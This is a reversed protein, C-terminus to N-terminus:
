PGSFAHGTRLNIFTCIFLRALRHRDFLHAPQLQPPAARVEHLPVLLIESVLHLAQLGEIVRINDLEETHLASVKISRAFCVRAHLAM